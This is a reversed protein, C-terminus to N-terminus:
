CPETVTVPLEAMGAVSDVQTLQNSFKDEEVKQTCIIDSVHCPRRRRNWHTLREGM